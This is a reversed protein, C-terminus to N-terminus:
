VNGNSAGKLRKALKKKLRKAVSPKLFYRRDKLERMFGDKKCMKTFIKLAKNFSEADHIDRVKIEIM